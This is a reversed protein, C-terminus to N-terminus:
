RLDALKLNINSFSGLVSGLVISFEMWFVDRFHNLFVNFFIIWYVGFQQINAEMKHWNSSCKGSHRTKNAIQKESGWSPVGKSRHQVGRTSRPRVMPLAWVIPVPLLQFQYYLPLAWSIGIHIFFLLPYTTEKSYTHQLKGKFIYSGKCLSYSAHKETTSYSSLYVLYM